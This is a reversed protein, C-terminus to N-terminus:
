CAWDQQWRQAQRHRGDCKRSISLPWALSTAPRHRGGVHIRRKKLTYLQDGSGILRAKKERLGPEGDSVGAGTVYERKGLACILVMCRWWGSMGATPRKANARARAWSPPQPWHDELEDEGENLVGTRGTEVEDEAQLTYEVGTDGTTGDELELRDEDGKEV